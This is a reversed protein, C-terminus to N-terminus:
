FFDIGTRIESVDSLYLGEASFVEIRRSEADNILVHGAPSLGIPGPMGFDGPGQGRSGFTLLPDGSHSFVKVQVDGIDLVYIRGADDVVVDRILNFIANENLKQAGITLSDELTAEAAKDRPYDPNMVLEVGDTNLRETPYGGTGRCSLSFVLIIPIAIMYLWASSLRQRCPKPGKMLVM